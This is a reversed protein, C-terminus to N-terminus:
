ALPYLKQLPWTYRKECLCSEIVIKVERDHALQEKLRRDHARNTLIVGGLASIFTILGGIIVGAYNALAKELASVFVTADM